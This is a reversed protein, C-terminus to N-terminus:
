PGPRKLVGVEAVQADVASTRKPDFASMVPRIQLTQKVGSLPCQSEATFHGSQALLPCRGRSAIL